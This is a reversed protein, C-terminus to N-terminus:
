RGPTYTLYGAIETTANNSKTGASLAGDSPDLPPEPVNMGTRRGFHPLKELDGLGLVGRESCIACRVDRGIGITTMECRLGDYAVYKRPERYPSFLNHIEALGLSALAGNLHRVSPAAINAGRVYGREVWRAQDIAPALEWSAQQADFVAACNLCWSAPGPLSLAYEGSIDAIHDGQVEIVVGLHMLPILYQAAVRQCYMRSSHNDTAVVILDSQKLVAVVSQDFVSVPYIAVAVNPNIEKVMRAAIEAKATRQTADEFRMGVVRNLNTIEAQDPEIINIAGFGLRAVGEIVISGLGGAGVVTIIAERMRAQGEEGFAQIQRDFAMDRVSSSAQERTHAKGLALNRLPSELLRMSEMAQWTPPRGALWVRGREGAEDFVLSAYVSKPLHQYIYEAVEAEERDDIGSFWLGCGGAGPHSHCDVQCLDGEACQRMLQQSFRSSVVVSGVSAREVAAGTAPIFERGLLRIEDGVVSVGALIAGFREQRAGTFLFSRIQQYMGAPLDLRYRHRPERTVFNRQITRALRRGTRRRRKNMM